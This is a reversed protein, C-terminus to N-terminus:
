QTHLCYMLLVLLLWFTNGLNKYHKLVLDRLKTGIETQLSFLEKQLNSNEFDPVQVPLTIKFGKPFSEQDTHLTLFKTHYRVQEQKLRLASLKDQRDEKSCDCWSIWGCWGAPCQSDTESKSDDSGAEVSSLWLADANFHKKWPPVLYWSEAWFDDRDLAKSEANSEIPRPRYVSATMVSCTPGSTNLLECWVLLKWTM